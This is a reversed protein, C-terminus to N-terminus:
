KKKSKELAVQLKMWSRQYSEVYPTSKYVLDGTQKWIKIIEEPTITSPPATRRIYPILGEYYNSPIPTEKIEAIVKPAVAVAVAGIGLKKLFSLRNM